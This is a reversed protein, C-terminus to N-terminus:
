WKKRRLKTGALGAIGSGFLLITAPIPVTATSGYSFNDIGVFSISPTFSINTIYGTDTTIGFFSSKPYIFPINYTNAGNVTVSITDNHTLNFIDCSVSSVGSPLAANVTTLSYNGVLVNTGVFSGTTSVWLDKGGHNSNPSTFIVGDLTLSHIETGALSDFNITHTGTTYADWAAFNNYTVIAANARGAMGLMMLGMALGVLFEKKMIMVEELM